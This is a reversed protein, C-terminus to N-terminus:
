VNGVSGGFPATPFLASTGNSVTNAPPLGKIPPGVVHIAQFSNKPLSLQNIAGQPDIVVGLYYTSPSTSLTVEKGGLSIVNNPQSLIQRAFTKYNGKTPVGSVGPLDDITYTAIIQSGLTFSKTVSEVLDVTM